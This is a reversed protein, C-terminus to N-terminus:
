DRKLFQNLVFERCQEDGLRTVNRVKGNNLNLEVIRGDILGTYLLDGRIALSEPGTIDKDKLLLESKEGLINNLKSKYIEFDPTEFAVPDLPFGPFASLPLVALLFIVFLDLVTLFVILKFLSGILSM